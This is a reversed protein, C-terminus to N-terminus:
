KKSFNPLIYLKRGGKQGKTTNWTLLRHQADRIDLVWSLVCCGGGGGSGPTWVWNLASELNASLWHSVDTCLLAKEWQSPLLRSDARCNVHTPGTGSLNVLRGWSLIAVIIYVINEFAKKHIFLKSIKNFIESSNLGLPGISLFGTNTSIIAQYRIPSLGNDWAISVQNM